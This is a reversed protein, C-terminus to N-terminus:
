LFNLGDVSLHKDGVGSSDTVLCEQFPSGGRRLRQSAQSVM